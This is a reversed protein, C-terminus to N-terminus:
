IFDIINFNVWKANGKKWKLKNIYVCCGGVLCFFDVFM